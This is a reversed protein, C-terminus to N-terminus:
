VKTKPYSQERRVTLTEQKPQENGRVESKPILVNDKLKAELAIVRLELGEDKLLAGCTSVVLIFV